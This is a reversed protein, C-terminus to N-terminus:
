DDARALSSAELPEPHSTTSPAGVVQPLRPKSRNASRDLSSSSPNPVLAGARHRRHAIHRLVNAVLLLALGLVAAQGFVIAVDPQWAAFGAVGVAAALYIGPQRAIPVYILLLGGALVTSGALLVILWRPISSATLQSLNGNFSFLYANTAEPLPDTRAVGIWDELQPQQYSSERAWVVGSRRWVFEPTLESAWNLLHYDRPLVLQWYTRSTGIAGVIRPFESRIQGISDANAEIIYRIELLHPKNRDQQSLKLVISKRNPASSTIAHNDLMLELKQPRVTEPLAFEIEDSSTTFAIAARQQLVNRSLWTQLWAREILTSTARGSQQGFLIAIDSTSQSASLRVGSVADGVSADPVDDVITWLEDHPQIRGAADGAVTLDNSQLAVSAPMVLPVTLLSGADGIPASTQVDYSLHVDFHGIRRSPLPVDLAVIESDLDEPPFATLPVGDISIQINGAAAIQKPVDLTISQLSEHEVNFKYVQEVSVETRGLKLLSEVSASISQPLRELDAIFTGSAQEARYFIAPQEHQPLQIRPAIATRVLGLLETERPRLRVNNAPLFAIIAPGISDATPAPLVVEIRSSNAPLKRHALVTLAVDGSVPQRLPIQTIQGALGVIADVDVTEGPRVEDIEWEPLAIELSSTKAGRIAYKLRAELRLQHSDVSYIYEPDVSIRTRKPAISVPLAAPQGFYEFCAIVDERQLDESVDEIQRVRNKAGWSVQWDGDIAVAIQGFQRHPASEVVEFNALELMSNAKTVDYAREAVFRIDVPGVTKKPLRVTILRSNSDNPVLTCGETRKDAALEVGAPLKIHFEDFEKGLGRVTFSCDFQISRGDIQALIRGNAELTTSTKPTGHENTDWALDLPGGLGLLRVQTEKANDSKLDAVAAGTHGALAIAPRPVRLEFSSTAAAPFSAELHTQTGIRKLPASFKLTVEHKSDRPGQLLIVYAQSPADFQVLHKGDGRYEETGRLVPGGSLLPVKTWQDTSLRVQYHATIEAFDDRVEGSLVLQQLDYDPRATAAQGSGKQKLFEAFEEYSFGLLPVLRGDKDRVYYVPPEEVVAHGEASAPKAEIPVNSAASQDAPGQKQEDAARVSNSSPLCAFAMALCLSCLRYGSTQL